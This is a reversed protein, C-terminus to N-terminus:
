VPLIHINIFNQNLINHNNNNNTSNNANFSNLTVGVIINNNSILDINQCLM